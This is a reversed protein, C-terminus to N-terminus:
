FLRDLLGGGKKDDDKDDDDKDDGDADDEDDDEDEAKLVKITIRESMIAPDFPIHNHDALLLQLTHEGPELDLVTETQGGGFHKLLDSAPLAEKMEDASPAKRDILLHHHGTNAKEVGAPAVGMGKLGFVVTVPGEIEDGDAPSIIYVEGAPKKADKDGDKDGEHHAAFAATAFAALGFAAAAISLAIKRM